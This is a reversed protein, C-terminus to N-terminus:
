WPESKKRSVQEILANVSGLYAKAHEFEAM